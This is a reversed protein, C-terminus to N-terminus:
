FGTDRPYRLEPQLSLTVWDKWVRERYTVGVIYRSAEVEPDTVGEIVFFTEVGVNETLLHRLSWRQVL